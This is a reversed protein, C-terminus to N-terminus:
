DHSVVANALIEGGCPVYEVDPNTEGDTRSLERIFWATERAEACSMPEGQVQELGNGDGDYAAVPVFGPAAYDDAQAFGSFLVTAVLLHLKKNMAM